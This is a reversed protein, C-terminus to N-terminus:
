KELSRDLARRKVLASGIAMRYQKASLKNLEASEIREAHAISAETARSSRLAVVRSRHDHETSARAARNRHASQSRAIANNSLAFARAEGRRLLRHSAVERRAVERDHLFRTQDVRSQTMAERRATLDELEQRKGEVPVEQYNRYPTPRPPKALSLRSGMPSVSRPPPTVPGWASPGPVPRVIAAAPGGAEGPEPTTLWGRSAPRVRTRARVRSFSEQLQPLTWESALPGASAHVGQPLPAQSVVLDATSTGIPSAVRVSVAWSPQDINALSPAHLSSVSHSPSSARRSLKVRVPTRHPQTVPRAVGSTSPRHPTRAVPADRPQPTTRPSSAPELVFSAELTPWALLERQNVPTGIHSTSPRSVNWRPHDRPTVQEVEARPSLAQERERFEQLILDNHKAFLKTWTLNAANAWRSPIPLKARAGPRKANAAASEWVRWLQSGTWLRAGEGLPADWTLALLLCARLRAELVSPFTLAVLPSGRRHWQPIGMSELPTSDEAEFPHPAHAARLAVCDEATLEGSTLLSPHPSAHRVHHFSHSVAEAQVDISLLPIDALPGGLRLSSASAEPVLPSEWRGQGTPADFFRRIRSRGGRVTPLAWGLWSPIGVRRGVWARPRSASEVMAVSWYGDGGSGAAQHVFGIEMLHEPLAHVAWPSRAAAWWQGVDPDERGTEGSGVWGRSVAALVAEEVFLTPSNEALIARSLGRISELMSIRRRFQRARVARQVCLVARATLIRHPAPPRLHVRARAARWASQICVAAAIQAAQWGFLLPAPAASLSEWRYYPPPPQDLALANGSSRRRVVEAQKGRGGSVGALGVLDSECYKGRRSLATRKTAVSAEGQQAAYSLRVIGNALTGPFRHLAGASERIIRLKLRHMHWKLRHVVRALLLPTPMTVRLLTTAGKLSKLAGMGSLTWAATTAASYGTRYRVVDRRSVIGSRRVMSALKKEMATTLGFWRHAARVRPFGGKVMPMSHIGVLARAVREPASITSQRMVLPPATPSSVIAGVVVDAISGRRRRERLRRLRERRNIAEAVSPLRRIVGACQLQMAGRRRRFHLPNVMLRALRMASEADEADEAAEKAAQMKAAMEMAETDFVRVRRKGAGRSSAERQISEQEKAADAARKTDLAKRREEVRQSRKHKLIAEARERLKYQLVQESQLTWSYRVTRAETPWAVPAYPSAAVGQTNRVARLAEERTRIERRSVDEERMHATATPIPDWWGEESGCSHEVLLYESRAATRTSTSAVTRRTWAWAVPRLNAECLGGQVVIAECVTMDVLAKTAETCPVLIDFGPSHDLGTGISARPSKDSVREIGDSGPDSDPDDATVAHHTGLLRGWTGGPREAAESWGVGCEQWMVLISRALSRMRAVYCRWARQIDTASRERRIAFVKRRWYRQVLAAAWHEHREWYSVSIDGLVPVMNGGHLKAESSRLWETIRRTQGRKWLFMRAIRQILSVSSLIKTEHSIRASGSRRDVSDSPALSRSISALTRLGQDESDEPDHVASVAPPKTMAAARQLAETPSFCEFRPVQGQSDMPFVVGILAGVAGSLAGAEKHRLMTCAVQLLREENESWLSRHPSVALDLLHDAAETMDPKSTAKSLGTVIPVFPASPPLMVVADPDRVTFGGTAVRAHTLDLLKWSVELPPPVLGLVAMYSGTARELDSAASALASTPTSVSIPDTLHLRPSLPEVRVMDAAIGLAKIIAHRKTGGGGGGGGGVAIAAAGEEAAAVGEEEEEVAHSTHPVTHRVDESLQALALTDGRALMDLSQLHGAPREAPCVLFSDLVVLSSPLVQLARCRFEKHASFLKALGQHTSKASSPASHLYAAASGPSTPDIPNGELAVVRLTAVHGLKEIEEFSSIRNNALSLISLFPMNAWQIGPPLTQLRNGSLDQSAADPATSTASGRSV